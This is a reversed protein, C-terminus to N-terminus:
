GEARLRSLLGRVGYRRQSEVQDPAPAPLTSPPPSSRPSVVERSSAAAANSPTAAAPERLAVELAKLYREWGAETDPGFATELRYRAWSAAKLPPPEGTAEWIQVAAPAHDALESRRLRREREDRDMNEPSAGWPQGGLLERVRAVFEARNVPLLRNYKPSDPAALGLANSLQALDGGFWHNAAQEALKAFQKLTPPKAKDAVQRHYADGVARLDQKWRAQLYHELHEEAWARRYRTVVERLHEFGDKKTPGMSVTISFSLGHGIDHETTDGAPLPRDTLNKEAQRLDAFMAYDIPCGLEDLAQIQRDYYNPMGGIDTRSYPGECIFWCTLAIGHWFEIGPGLTEAFAAHPFPETVLAQPWRPLVATAWLEEVGSNLESSLMEYGRRTYRGDDFNEGTDEFRDGLLGWLSPMGPAQCAHLDDFARWWDRMVQARQEVPSDNQGGWYAALMREIEDSPVGTAVAAQAVRDRGAVLLSTHEVATAVNEAPHVQEGLYHVFALWDGGFAGSLTRELGRNMVKTRQAIGNKAKAYYREILQGILLAIAREGVDGPAGEWADLLSRRAAIVEDITMAVWGRGDKFVALPAIDIGLAAYAADVTAWDKEMQDPRRDGLWYGSRLKLPLYLLEMVPEVVAWIAIADATELRLAARQADAAAISFRREVGAWHAFEIRGVLPADAEPMYWAGRAQQAAPALMAELIEHEADGVKLTVVDSQTRRKAPTLDLIQSGRIVRDLLGSLVRDYDAYDARDGEVAHLAFREAPPAAALRAGLTQAGTSM